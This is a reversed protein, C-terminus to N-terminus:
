FHVDITYHGSVSVSVRYGGEVVEQASSIVNSGSIVPAGFRGPIWLTTEGQGSAHAELHMIGTDPDSQLSLPKGFIGLPRSRSLVNLYITNTNGTFHGDKDVEILHMSTNAYTNGDWSIGHPDGPAQCWQWWTSGVILSDEQKAFRKVKSVDASPDGFFGWEGVHMSTNYQESVDKVLAFGQEISLEYTIAEFYLHPSLIINKDATFDPSPAYPLPSGNWSISMEFFIIHPYGGASREADRIANSLKGYYNSMLIGEQELTQTGLSPENLLDYGVVNSYKSCAKVVEQWAKVCADNITNTNSWFNEFAHFVAPATERGGNTCTSASDTITAWDPAGDWGKNPSACGDSATSAIYKGWADQHMDLLVYIHYKAAEEIVQQLQQIYAYNYQGRLPELKSWHFLLRICNFGYKAMKQIDTPDYNKTAPVAPNAQWYDGLVNYNVGRLLVYHGQQDYIGPNEGRVSYLLEDPKGSSHDKKCSILSVSSLAFLM